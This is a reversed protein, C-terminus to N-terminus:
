HVNYWIPLLFLYFCTSIDDSCSVHKPLSQLLSTTSEWCNTNGIGWIFGLSQHTNWARIKLVVCSPCVHRNEKVLYSHWALIFQHYATKSFTFTSNVQSDNKIDGVSRIALELVHTDPYLKAFHSTTTICKSQQSCKNEIAQSMTRYMDCVCLAIAM